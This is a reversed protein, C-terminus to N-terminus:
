ASQFYLGEEVTTSFVSTQCIVCMSHIKFIKVEDNCTRRIKKIKKSFKTAAQTTIMGEAISFIFM